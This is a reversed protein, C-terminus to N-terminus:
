IKRTKESIMDQLTKGMGDGACAGKGECPSLLTPVKSVRMTRM